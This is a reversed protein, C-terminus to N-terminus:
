SHEGENLEPHDQWFKLDAPVIRWGEGQDAYGDLMDQLAEFSNSMSSVQNDPDILAFQQM